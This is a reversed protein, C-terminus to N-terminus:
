GPLAAAVADAIAAAEPGGEEELGEIVGLRDAMPRNQSLKWKGELRTIALRFGVIGKLQSAIFEAPADTVAWPAARGGEHKATLRSVLAHLEAPDDFFALPGYAHVAIYNWTPVVKGTERKTAYFSPSVYADPGPFIALAPVDAASQRWQGNARAIHGSLTGKPGEADDLLMPVHSAVIGESGFTVLIALGASRIATHLVPLRSEQFAPPVYV